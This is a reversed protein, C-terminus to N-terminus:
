RDHLRLRDILHRVEERLTALAHRQEALDDGGRAFVAHDIVTMEIQRPSTMFRRTAIRIEPRPDFMTASISAALAASKGASTTTTMELLASAPPSAFALSLPM